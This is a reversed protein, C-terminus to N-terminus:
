DGLLDKLKDKLKRDLEDKISEEDRDAKDEPTLPEGEEPAAVTDGGGLGLKDLLSDQLRKKAYQAVLDTISKTKDVQPADYTGGIVLPLTYDAIFRLEKELPIDGEQVVNAGVRYNIAKTNLDLTGRGSVRMLPMDIQLDDNSLVGETIVATGKAVRFPTRNPEDAVLPEKNAAAVINRVTEMVNIGDLVGDAFNFSATGNSTAKLDRTNHGQATMTLSGTLKGTLRQSGALAQSFAGFDVNNFSENLALQPLEGDANLRIDGSYTGGYLAARIPYLRVRGSTANLEVEVNSSEIGGVTLDGIRLQGKLNLDRLTQAPLEITDVAREQGDIADPPSLYGDLTLQDLSVSVEPTQGTLKILGTIQSDDLTAEIDRLELGAPTMRLALSGGARSLAQDDATNLDVGLQTMLQRLNFPEVTVPGSLTAAKLVNRGSLTGRGKLGFGEATYANIQLAGSDLNLAVTDAGVNVTQPGDPVGEGSMTAALAATVITLEARDKLRISEANLAGNAAGLAGETFAFEFDLAPTQVTVMGEKMSLADTTLSGAGSALKAAGDQGGSVAWTVTGAGVEATDEGLTVTDTDLEISFQEFPVAYHRGSLTVVPNDLTLADDFLQTAADIAVDLSVDNAALRTTLTVDFPTGPRLEGTRLAFESLTLTNFQANPLEDNFVITANTIDIAGLSDTAFGSAAESDPADTARTGGSVASWNTRGDALRTLKIQGGDISTTGLEIRKSLLPMLKVSANAQDFALLPGEGFAPDDSLTTRGIGIRIWPFTTLTLDGEIVLERGTLDSVRQTIQERLDNPDFVFRFYLALCLAAVLLLGVFGALIKFLTKM